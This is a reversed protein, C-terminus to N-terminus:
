KPLDHQIVQSKFIYPKTITASHFRAKRTHRPTTDREVSPNLVFNTWAAYKLVFLPSLNDGHKHTFEMNWAGASDLMPRTQHAM